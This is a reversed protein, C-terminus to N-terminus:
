HLVQPVVPWLHHLSLYTLKSCVGRRGGGERGEERIRWRRLAVETVVGEERRGEVM